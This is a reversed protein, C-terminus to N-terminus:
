MPGILWASATFWAITSCRSRASALREYLLKGLCTGYVLEAARVTTEEDVCAEDGGLMLECSAARCAYLKEAADRLGAEADCALDVMAWNNRFMAKCSALTSAPYDETKAAENVCAATKECIADTSQSYADDARGAGAHYNPQPINAVLGMPPGANVIAGVTCHFRVTNFVIGDKEATMTYDGPPIRYYLVGGDISTSPQKSDPIVAENFYLPGSEAPVSPTLVAKVGPMGQRLRVYLSGGFRAVTTAIACYKDLETPLPVVGSLATFLDTSVIQVSFPNLGGAPVVYTATTTTQFDPHEVVLTVDEGVVLGDFHFHADSGTVFSKEPHEVISVKAGAVRPGPVETLFALVDGDISVTDTTAHGASGGDGSGGNASAGSAGAAGATSEPTAPADDDGCGGLGGLVLTLCLPVALFLPGVVPARLLQMLPSSVQYLQYVFAVVARRGLLPASSAASFPVLPIELCIELQAGVSPAVAAARSQNPVTSM